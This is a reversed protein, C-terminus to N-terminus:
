SVLTLIELGHSTMAVTHEWQASLKGDTTVATWGDSLTKTKYIGENIMPEITFVMGPEIKPGPLRQRYHLVLPDEHFARGIGHGCYDKVVSFGHEEAIGSIIAGIDSFRANPLNCVRIGEYLCEKATNVLEEANPKPKGVFFTESIDAHYGNLISTIDINIIDGDKLEYAGPIGHTVVENVSTCVSKPFGKYGLCAPIAGNKLTFEKVFDDIEQTTIGAKCIEGARALTEAVLMGCDRIREIEKSTKILIKPM